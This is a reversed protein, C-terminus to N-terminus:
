EKEKQVGGSIDNLNPREWCKEYKRMLGTV